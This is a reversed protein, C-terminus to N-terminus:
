GGKGHSLYNSAIGYQDNSGAESGINLNSLSGILYQNNTNSSGQDGGTGAEHRRRTQQFDTTGASEAAPAQFGNQQDQHSFSKWSSM